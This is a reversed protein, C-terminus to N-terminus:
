SRGGELKKVRRELDKLGRELREWSQITHRLEDGYIVRIWGHEIEVKAAFFEIHGPPHSRKIKEALVIAADEDSIYESVLVSKDVVLEASMRNGPLPLPRMIVVDGQLRIEGEYNTNIPLGWREIEKYLLALVQQERCVKGNSM